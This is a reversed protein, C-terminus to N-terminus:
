KNKYVRGIEESKQLMLSVLGDVSDMNKLALKLLAIVAYERTRKPLM